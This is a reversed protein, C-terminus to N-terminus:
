EELYLKLTPILTPIDNQIVDWLVEARISFYGHVLIHRMGEIQRWPIEPHSEKYEKTIMYAAEGIIEVMKSLGFFLISNNQIDEITHRSREHELMIAMDLMHQIRGPDKLRERM